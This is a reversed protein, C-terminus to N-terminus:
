FTKLFPTRLFESRCSHVNTIINNNNTTTTNTLSAARTVLYLLLVCYIYTKNCIGEPM